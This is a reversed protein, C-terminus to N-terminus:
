NHGSKHKEPRPEMSGWILLAILGFFCFAVIGILINEM